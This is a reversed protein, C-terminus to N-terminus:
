LSFESVEAALFMVVVSKQGFVFCKSAQILLFVLKFFNYKCIAVAGFVRRTSSTGILKAMTVDHHSFRALEDCAERMM